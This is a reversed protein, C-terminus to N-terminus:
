SCWRRKSIYPRYHITVAIFFYKASNMKKSNMVNNNEAHLPALVGPSVGVGESSSATM